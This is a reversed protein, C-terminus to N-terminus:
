FLNRRGRYDYRHVVVVSRNKGHTEQYTEQTTAKASTGDNVAVKTVPVVLATEFNSDHLIRLSERQLEPLYRISDRLIGQFM